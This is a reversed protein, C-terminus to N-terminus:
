LRTEKKPRMADEESAVVGIVIAAGFIPLLWILKAQARKQQPDFLPSRLVRRTVSIQFWLASILLLCGFWNAGSM